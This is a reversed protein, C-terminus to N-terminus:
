SARTRIAPVMQGDLSGAVEYKEILGDSVLREALRFSSAYDYGRAGLHFKIFHVLGVYGRRAHFYTEQQRLETLFEDASIVGWSSGRSIISERLANKEEQPLLLNPASADAAEIIEALENATQQGEVFDSHLFLNSHAIKHRLKEFNEWKEQFGKDRFSEKFFKQYNSQLQEKLTKIADATEDLALIRKVVDEKSTFGSSQAYILKGLDNFDILYAKNDIFEAFQRENNKRQSVKSGLEASATVDWWSPGLRTVMFRILYGRLANEVRYLSPYLECAIKQSVEDRLVYVSEFRQARFHKLLSLRLPEVDEYIGNLEAVFARAFSGELDEDPEV